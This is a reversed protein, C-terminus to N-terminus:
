VRRRSFGTSIALRTASTAPLGKELTRKRLLAPRRASATPAAYLSSTRATLSAAHGHHLTSGPLLLLVGGGGRQLCGQLPRALHRPDNRRAGRQRCTCSTRLMSSQPTWPAKASPVRAPRPAANQLSRVRLRGYQCRRDQGERVDEGFKASRVLGRGRMGEYSQTCQDNAAVSRRTSGARRRTRLSFSM